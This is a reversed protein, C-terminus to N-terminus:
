TKWNMTLHQLLGLLSTRGSPLPLWLGSHTSDRSDFEHNPVPKLAVHRDQSEGPVPFCGQVERPKLQEAPFLPPEVLSGKM